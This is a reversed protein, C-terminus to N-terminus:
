KEHSYLYIRFIAVLYQLYYYIKSLYFCLFYLIIEQVELEM